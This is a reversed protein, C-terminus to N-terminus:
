EFKNEYVVSDKEDWIILDDILGVAHFEYSVALLRGLSINYKDNLLLKNDLLIKIQKNKNEIQLKNWKDLEINFKLFNHDEGEMFKESLQLNVKNQFGKNTFTLLIRNNEGWLSIQVVNFEIKNKFVASKFNTIMKFDDLNIDFSDSNWFYLRYKTKCDIGQECIPIHNVTLKGDNVIENNNYRLLLDKQEIYAEWDNTKFCLNISDIKREKYILFVKYPKPVKYTHSIINKNKPLLIKKDFTNEAGHQNIKEGFDIYVDEKFKSIDYNFIVDNPVGKEGSQLYKFTFEPTVNITIFHNYFFTGVSLLIIIIFSILIPLINRNKRKKSELYKFWNEFGLYIALANKTEIQPIYDAKETKFKGFLRRLTTSSIRIKSANWILDSLEEFQSVKWLIFNGWGTKIEIEKLCEQIIISENM